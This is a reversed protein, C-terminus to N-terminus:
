RDLNLFAFGLGSVQCDGTLEELVVVDFGQRFCLRAEDVELL